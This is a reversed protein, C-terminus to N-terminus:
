PYEEGYDGDSQKKPMAQKVYPSAAGALQGITALTSLFGGNDIKTPTSLTPAQVMQGGTFALPTNQATSAQSNLTKMAALAEPNAMLSRMLGGSAGGPGISTPTMGGGLLAAILAQKATAGRANQEFGKRQLDLAGAQNQANQQQQYLDLANRDRSLNANEQAVQGQAKGQQQKGLISGVDGAADMITSVTGGGPVLGLVGKGIKGLVSLFSM